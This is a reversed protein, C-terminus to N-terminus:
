LYHRGRPGLADNPRMSWASAPVVIRTFWYTMYKVEYEDQIELDSRHLEAVDERTAGQAYHRDMFIPM